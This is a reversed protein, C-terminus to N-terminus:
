SNHCKQEYLNLFFNRLADLRNIGSGYQPGDDSNGFAIFMPGRPCIDVNFREMLPGLDAWSDFSPIPKKPGTPYELCDPAFGWWEAKMTNLGGVNRWGAAEAIKMHDPKESVQPSVAAPGEQREWQATSAASPPPPPLIRCSFELQKEERLHKITGCLLDNEKQMKDNRACETISDNYFKTCHKCYPWSGPAHHDDHVTAREAALLRDTFVRFTWLAGHFERAAEEIMKKKTEEDIM